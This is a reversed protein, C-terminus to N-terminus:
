VVAPQSDAMYARGRERLGAALREYHAEFAAMREAPVDHTWRGIHARAPTVDSDFFTRLGPDDELGLFALLRSLQGDRDREILQEMQMVLLRDHPLSESAAYGEEIKAAWWDLAEDVDTPGWPLPTVSCAVDRGDRVSHILQMDPFLELLMPAVLVNAPTMEAWGVAGAAAAFPDLLDHTFAASATRPESKLGSRHKRFIAEVTAKDTFRHMGGPQRQFWRGMLRKEFRKLDTHGEILDCLGGSASIFRVETPVFWVDPHAGLLRATVQTGSRGTGGVFIPKLRPGAATDVGRRAADSSRSPWLDRLRDIM